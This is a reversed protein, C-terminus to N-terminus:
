SHRKLKLVLKKEERLRFATVNAEPETDSTENRNYATTENYNCLLIVRVGCTKALYEEQLAQKVSYFNRHDCYSNQMSKYVYTKSFKYSISSPVLTINFM